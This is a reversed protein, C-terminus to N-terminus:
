CLKAQRFLKLSSTDFTMKKKKEKHDTKMRKVNRIMKAMQHFVWIEYCGNVDMVGLIVCISLLVIIFYMM